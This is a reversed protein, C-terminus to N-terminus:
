PKIEVLQERLRKRARHLYVKVQSMSMDMTLAVDQYSHQRVDRLVILSRFPEPLQGLAHQLRESDQAQQLDALPTGTATLTEDLAQEPRRRRLRDLCENRTVKMIWPRVRESDINDRHKWLRVFVEQAADEAEAADKLIHRALSWVDNQLQTVWQQFIKSMYVQIYAPRQIKNCIPQFREFRDKKHVLEPTNTVNTVFNPV